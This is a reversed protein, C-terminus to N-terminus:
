IKCCALIASFIFDMHWMWHLIGMYFLVNQYPQNYIISSYVNTIGGGGFTSHTGVSPCGLCGLFIASEGKALDGGNELGRAPELTLFDSFLLFCRGPWRM